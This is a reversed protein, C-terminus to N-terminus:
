LCDSKTLRKGMQPMAAASTEIRHVTRRAPSSSTKRSSSKAPPPARMTSDAGAAVSRRTVTVLLILVPCCQAAHRIVAQPAKNQPRRIDPPRHMTTASGM